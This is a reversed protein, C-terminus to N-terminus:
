PSTKVKQSWSVPASSFVPRKAPPMRFWKTIIVKSGATVPMGQHRTFNNGDGSALLNNWFVAMGRKPEITLDVDVFRTGGGGEPENLYIMFTWTRQGWEACGYQELEYPKFFDTHPKFEQGVEYWQGQSPEALKLEIGMARAVKTDLRVVVDEGGNLDCTRSTRFKGDPEGGPPVTITSPRLRRRIIEVLEACDSADLFGEATYLEISTSPHRKAGPVTIAPRAPRQEVFAPAPQRPAGAIDELAKRVAAEGFGEKLLIATLEDRACGREVNTRLWQLWRADLSRTM